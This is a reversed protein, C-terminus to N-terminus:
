PAKFVKLGFRRIDPRYKKLLTELALRDGQQAALVLDEERM